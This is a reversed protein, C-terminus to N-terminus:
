LNNTQMIPQKCFMPLLRSCKAWSLSNTPTDAGQEEHPFLDVLLLVATKIHRNEEDDSLKEHIVAQVMRHISLLDDKVEILSYRRLAIIADDVTLSDVLATNSELSDKTQEGFLERPIDDPRLLRM